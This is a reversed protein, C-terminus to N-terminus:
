FRSLTIVAKLCLKRCFQSCQQIHNCSFHYHTQFFLIEKMRAHCLYTVKKLCTIGMSKQRADRKPIYRLVIIVTFLVLRKSFLVLWIGMVQSINVHWTVTWVCRCLLEQSNVFEELMLHNVLLFFFQVTFIMNGSHFLNNKCALIWYWLYQLLIIWFQVIYYKQSIKFSYVSIM